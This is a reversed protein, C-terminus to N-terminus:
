LGQQPGPKTTYRNYNKGQPRSQRTFGQRTDLLEAPQAGGNPGGNGGNAGGIANLPPQGVPELANRVADDAEAQAMEVAELRNITKQVEQFDAYARQYADPYKPKKNEDFEIQDAPMENGIKQLAKAADAFKRKAEAMETSLSM